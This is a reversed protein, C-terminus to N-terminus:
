TVCSVEGKMVAIFDIETYGEKEFNKEYQRQM